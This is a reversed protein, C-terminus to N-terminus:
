ARRGSPGARERDLASPPRVRVDVVVHTRAPGYPKVRRPRVDLIEGGSGAVAGAVEAAATEEWRASPVVVHVHLWGGRPDLLELARPLFALSTPLLGLFVRDFSGVPLEVERNDGLHPVVRDEVANARLNRLLYGYSGPDKEVAHVVRPGGFKAAPVTFYGIGAFLDAVREGPRVLEGARRRESRNGAAFMIQAADLHWLVGEERHVTETRQGVLLRLRPRRLEGQIGGEFNLVTDVGLEERYLEGIQPAQEGLSTPLRLLLVHGLRQYGHPLQEAAVTGAFRALRERVREAPPRHPRM